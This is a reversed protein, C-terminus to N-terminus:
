AVRALWQAPDGIEELSPLHGPDDFARNLRDIGGEAVVAQVFAEGETYQRQKLELGAVATLIRTTVDSSRRRNLASRVGEPDDIVGDAGLRMAANGHGELLSMLGQAEEMIDVQEPSLLAKIVPEVSGTERAKLLAGPLKGAADVLQSADLRSGELYRQLLGRLHEGMWGTGDFQLRHTVEHLLVSRRIDDAVAGNAEALDLLNPGVVVLQGGGPGGLPLIFQGIVKGSLLGFIAGVQAGLVRRASAIRAAPLREALPDFAGRMAALNLRVWGLRGVVSVDTPPLDDGLGTWARAARDIGALEEHVQDRLRAVAAPDSPRRPSTLRAAWIATREDVLNPPTM